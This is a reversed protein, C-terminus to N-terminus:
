KLFWEGCNITFITPVTCNRHHCLFQLMWIWMQLIHIALIFVNRITGNFKGNSHVFESVAAKTDIKNASLPVGVHEAVKKVYNNMFSTIPCREKNTLKWTGNNLKPRCQVDLWVIHALFSAQKEMEEFRSATSEIIKYCLQKRMKSCMM